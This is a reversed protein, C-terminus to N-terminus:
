GRAPLFMPKRINMKLDQKKGNTPIREAIKYDSCNRNKEVERKRRQDSFRRFEPTYEPVIEQLKLKIKVGDYTRAIELLVDIQHQLPDWDHGNGRLILIKEHETKVIGEGETILEEYLKEGPRLGTYQIAIDRDPEYGHLRILDRALEAINVPKGMDLIFSEGGEGMAGAELILQAAEPISMFYRTVEPHTVTVPGGRAIQDQFTPIVSGSSGMVNGFRVVMFQGKSRKNASLTLKEAIRKTAGMVNTPRVAKDTSVLVFREVAHEEELAVQVLNRTGLVNNRVAEWPHLEQLPVHKYAATHFVVQPRFKKFVQNLSEQDRIDVLFGSTKIYAFRQRCEMEIRFLNFESIEVLALAGPHFRSVQRVLESGISGGAGTILVRKGHLCSSIEDINLKVEKRGLLDQLTVDRVTKVSVRGDILEGISPITRFRKGTKECAAVIRRMEQGSASPLAILIEDFFTRFSDIQDVTGLVKVGHIARGLKGPEDDLFGVPIFKLTPNDLIERLVKEGASGAGIILLKKKGPDEGSLPAFLERHANGNFYLRTSMRVGGIFLLGLGCDIFFVSRSYGEFRHMLLVALIIGVTSLIVAKIVNLMDELSAFRWMGQYMRFFVFISMKVLLIFPMIQFMTRLHNPPIQFEFRIAYALYFSVAILIADLLFSGAEIILLKKGQPRIKTLAPFIKIGWNKTFYLRIGVRVGGIFLLTLICDIIFVSRPYGVFRYMVLMAIIIGATSAFVAKAVNLLDPLSTYRWMGQYLRFILFSSLKIIFIIPLISLMGNMEKVPIRFEFRIAYALCFSAAVLVTDIIFIIYSNKNRLLKNM